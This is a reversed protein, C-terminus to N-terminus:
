LLPPHSRRTTLPETGTAMLNLNSMVTAVWFVNEENIENVKLSSFHALEPRDPARQHM